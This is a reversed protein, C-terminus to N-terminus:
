SPPVAGRRRAAWGILDDTVFEGEGPVDETLAGLDLRYVEASTRGLAPAFDPGPARMLLGGGGGDDGVLAWGPAYHAVEHTTGREALSHPGYLALGDPGYLGPTLRWLEAVTPNPAESLGGRHAALEAAALPDPPPGPQEACETLWRERLPGAPNLRRVFGADTHDPPMTGAQLLVGARDPGRGFLGDADLLRLAEEMSALRLDYEAEATAEDEIRHPQGRQDFARAVEGYHERYGWVAYPSDAPNWAELGLRRDGELSCAALHPSLAEGTTLLAFLYFRDPHQRRLATVAARTATAIVRSLEPDPVPRVPPAPVPETGDSLVRLLVQPAIRNAESPPEDGLCEHVSHAHPGLADLVARLRALVEARDNGFLEVDLLPQGTDTRRRVESLGLGLARHLAMLVRAPPREGPVVSARVAHPDSRVM